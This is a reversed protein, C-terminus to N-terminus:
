KMGITDIAVIKGGDWCVLYMRATEGAKAELTYCLKAGHLEAKLVRPSTLDNRGMDKTDLDPAGHRNLAETIKAGTGFSNMFERMETMIEVNPADKANQASQGDKANQAAGADKRAMSLCVKELWAKAADVKAAELDGAQTANCWLAGGGAMKYVDVKVKDKGNSHSSVLFGGDIAEQKAIVMDSGSRAVADKLTAPPLSLKAVAITLSGGQGAEWAVLTENSLKENKKLGEPLTISFALGGASAEVPKLEKGSWDAGSSGKCAGLVGFAALALALRWQKRMGDNKAPGGLPTL